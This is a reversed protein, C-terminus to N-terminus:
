SSTQTVTGDPQIWTREGTSSNRAMWMLMEDGPGIIQTAIHETEGAVGHVATILAIVQGKYILEAPPDYEHRVPQMGLAPSGFQGVVQSLMIDEVSRESKATRVFLECLAPNVYRQESTEEPANEVTVFDFNVARIDPKRIVVDLLIRRVRGELDEENPRRLEMIHVGHGNAVSRAGSQYGTVTVMVGTAFLGVEALDRIVGVWAFADKQKLPSKYRRCEFIVLHKVEKHEFVWLVDIQHRAFRGQLRVDHELRLNKVNHTTSLTEVLGRVLQEYEQPTLEEEM